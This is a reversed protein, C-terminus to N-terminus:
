VGIIPTVVGEPPSPRSETRDDVGGPGPGRIPQMVPTPPHRPGELHTPADGSCAPSAVGGPGADGSCAPSAIGVRTYVRNWVGYAKCAFCVGPGGRVLGRGAPVPYVAGGAPAIRGIVWRAMGGRAPGCSGGSPNWVAGTRVPPSRVWAGLPAGARGLVSPGVGRRGGPGGPRGPARRADPGIRAPGARAGGWVGGWGVRCFLM